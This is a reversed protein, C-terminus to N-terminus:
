QKRPVLLHVALPEVVVDFPTMGVLDGDAQVPRAPDTEIRIRRGATYLMCPDTRFDKRLLRWTVRVSDRLGSPSFVCLDLMGDDQRIGPGLTILDRFVAGFNAVMVMTARREHRVGDVTATVAFREHRLAALTGTWFYALVGLRGKLVPSTKEVMTADIGVGAAFAFRHGDISGLDIQADDGDVLADVARAVDLPIGLVRAILNGTGGPLVGIPIASHALAGIVEMVTGDGGLTFVADFDGARQGALEAAHGPRETLMVECAVGRRDFASQADRQRRAGRRSGPNVLLLVRKTLVAVGPLHRLGM